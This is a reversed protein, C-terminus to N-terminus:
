CASYAICAKSYTQYHSTWINTRHRGLGYNVAIHTLVSQAISIVEYMPGDAYIRM